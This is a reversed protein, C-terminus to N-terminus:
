AAVEDLIKAFVPASKESTDVYHKCLTEISAHRTLVQVSKLDM